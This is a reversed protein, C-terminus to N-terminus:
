ESAKTFRLCDIDGISGSPGETDMVVRLTQQGAKLEVADATITQLTGWGGTDPVQIPGTVDQGAFELHFTGGVKESAVPVELNYVGTEKVAVTYVLWEGARTWGVGFGGSADDRKEIDVETAGRYDDAGQNEVEVDHYAVEPPGQDFNEAEITGPIEYIAEGFPQTAPETTSPEDAPPIEAPADPTSTASPEVTARDSQNAPEPAGCGAVIILSLLAVHSLIYNLRTM